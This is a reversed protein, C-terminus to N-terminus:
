EVARLEYANLGVEDDVANAHYDIYISRPYGFEDDYTVNVRFANGLLAHEVLDFLDDITMVHRSDVPVSLGTEVNLARRIQRQHVTVRTPARWEPPCECPTRQLTFEYVDPRREEWLARNSELSELTSPGTPMCAPLALLLILGVRNM